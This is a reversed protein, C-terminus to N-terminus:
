REVEFRVHTASPTEICRIRKLEIRESGLDEFLRVGEGLLVPILHIEMEDLLGV